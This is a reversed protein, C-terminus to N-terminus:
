NSTVAHVMGTNNTWVVRGGPKVTAGPFPSSSSVISVSVLTDASSASVVVSGTMPAHHFCHYPFTGATAFRHRYTAGPGFDGSNLEKKSNNDPDTGYGDDGCSAVAALAAFWLGLLLAPTKARTIIAFSTTAFIKKM